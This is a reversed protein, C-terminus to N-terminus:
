PRSILTRSVAAVRDDRAYTSSGGSFRLVSVAHRAKLPKEQNREADAQRCSSLRSPPGPGNKRLTLGRKVQWHEGCRALGRTSEIHSPM